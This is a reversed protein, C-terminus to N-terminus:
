ILIITENKSLNSRLRIDDITINVKFNDPLLSKLIWNFNSIEYVGLPLTYGIASAEIYNLGPINLVDTYTIELRFVM